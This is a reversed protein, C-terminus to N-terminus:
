SPSATSPRSSPLRCAPERLTSTLAASKRRGAADLSLIGRVRRRGGPDSDAAVRALQLLYLRYAGPDRGPNGCIRVHDGAALGEATWGKTELLRAGRWEVAWTKIDGQDDPVRVHVMSHPEGFLFSAVEGELVVTREEDYIESIAHHAQM